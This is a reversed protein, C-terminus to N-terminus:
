LTSLSYRMVMDVFYFSWFDRQQAVKHPMNKIRRQLEESPPSQCMTTLGVNLGKGPKSSLFKDCSQLWKSADLRPMVDRRLSEQALLGVFYTGSSTKSVYPSLPRSRPYTWPGRSEVWAVVKTSHARIGAGLLNSLREIRPIGVIPITGNLSGFVTALRGHLIICPAVRTACRAITCSRLPQTVSLRSHSMSMSKNEDVARSFRRVVLVLVDKWYSPVGPDTGM